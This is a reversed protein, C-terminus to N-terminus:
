CAQLQLHWCIMEWLWKVSGIGEREGWATYVGVGEGAGNLAGGGKM